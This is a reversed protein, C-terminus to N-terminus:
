QVAEDCGGEDKPPSGSLSPEIRALVWRAKRFRLVATVPGLSLATISSTSRPSSTILALYPFAMPSASSGALRPLHDLPGIRGDPGVVVLDAGDLVRRM